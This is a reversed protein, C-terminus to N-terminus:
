DVMVWIQFPEYVCLPVLMVTVGAAYLATM